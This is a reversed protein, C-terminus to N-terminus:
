PLIIGGPSRRESAPEAAEPADVAAPTPLAEGQRVRQSLELVKEFLKLGFSSIGPSGHFLRSAEARAIEAPHPRETRAFYDAMSALRGAYLRRMEPTFFAEAAARTHHKLQEQRQVDNIYLQSTAVEDAKLALTRLADVPPLWAEIEREDHLKFGESALREQDPTPTPLELTREIPTVGYHRLTEETGSPYPHKSRLNIGAACALLERGEQAGLELAPAPEGAKPPRFLGRYAARTVDKLVLYVIGLEDTYMLRAFEIGSRVPRGLILGREGNGTIPTLLGPLGEPTARAPEAPTDPAASPTAVGLSKLQYLAKKGAKALAKHPSEALAAPLEPARARVAAELVALALPEPLAAVDGAAAHAADRALARARELAPAPFDAAGGSLLTDLLKM